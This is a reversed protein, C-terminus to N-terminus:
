NNRRIELEAQIEKMRKTTLPYLSLFFLSAAAVAAPVFSMLAKVWVLATETQVAGAETSYGVAALIATVASGGIAGGFKQAMSSSSFILGTSATNFKLEAYDAIDAYMSWVLPSVIGTIVSIVVQMLMMLWYGGSTLPIFFFICSLVILCMLSYIFTSKKGIKSTIWPCMAVGAMNAVEGVAFFIGAYFLFEFSFIKLQAGDGIVSAFFFPGATYRASNFLNFFLVGGLLIWWPANKFLTKLDAGVSTEKPMSKVTEKTMRFCLLFLFFCCIAVVIMAYQWSSPDNVNSPLGQMRNFMKCLPEWGALVIFSGAYAFFMRFSSFVTKEDSDATMVGLMAGYPVNIATYVTMMLIYTAYAWIRKGEYSFDPTTFLLIGTVAFPISIWLLYPRYKGWKTQTRDAIIGMMPDSVADWIRTILMLFTADVLSLGFITSYFFPLYATFVKWFLCSSMDGFGYGIKQSLPAKAGGVTTNTM